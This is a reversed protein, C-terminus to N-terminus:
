KKKKEMTEFPVNANPYHFCPTKTTCFAWAVSMLIRQRTEGKPQGEGAGFAGTKKITQALNAGLIKTGRM